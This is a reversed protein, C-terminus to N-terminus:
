FGKNTIAGDKHMGVHTNYREAAAAHGHESCGQQHQALLLLLV